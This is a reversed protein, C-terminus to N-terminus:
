SACKATTSSVYYVISGAKTETVNDCLATAVFVYDLVSHSHRRWM